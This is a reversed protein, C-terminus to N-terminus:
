GNSIRDCIMEPMMGQFPAVGVAVRNTLRGIDTVHISVTDGEILSVSLSPVLGTGTSLIAGSPFREGVFLFRALDAFTRRMESTSTTASWVEVDKRSVSVSIEFRTPAPLTWAPRIGPGLACSGSFLKAQPLYLPNEGEISRSSMDNCVTYGFIEGRSNLVLALEPEPVNIASDARVGVMDGDGMVRWAVAKFFLEPRDAEYVKSYVDSVSSEEMRAQQSRRYTVGSAWVETFGDIPPLLAQPPHVEELPSEVIRMAQALPMMLLESLSGARIERLVGSSNQVGVCAHGEVPDRFRVILM